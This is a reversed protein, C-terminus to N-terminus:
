SGVSVLLGQLFLVVDVCVTQAHILIYVVFGVALDEVQCGGDSISLMVVVWGKLILLVGPVICGM